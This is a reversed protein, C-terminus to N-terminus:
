GTAGPRINHNLRFFNGPDYAAKVETLRDYNGGYAARVRGPGEDEAIFHVYGGGTSAHGAARRTATVHGAGRRERPRRHGHRRPLPARTVPHLRFSLSTVVGFNGGGGRLAWFLDPHQRGSATLVRGEATVVEAEILNDCSLGALRDLRGIGGGLTM